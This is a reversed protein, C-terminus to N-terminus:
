HTSDNIKKREKKRQYYEKSIKNRLEKKTINPMYNYDARLRAYFRNETPANNKKSRSSQSHFIIFKTYLEQAEKETIKSLDTKKHRGNPVQYKEGQRRLFTTLVNHVMKTKANKATTNDKEM